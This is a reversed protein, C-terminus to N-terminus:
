VSFKRCSKFVSKFIILSGSSLCFVHIYSLSILFYVSIVYLVLHFNQACLTFSLFSFSCLPIWCIVAPLSFCYSFLLLYYYLILFLFFLWFLKLSTHYVMFHFLIHLLFTGPSSSLFFIELFLPQVSWNQHFVHVCVLWCLLSSSVLFDSLSSYQSVNYDIQWSSFVLNHFWSPHLLKDYPLWRWYSKCMMDWMEWWLGWFDPFCCFSLYLIVFSPHRAWHILGRVRAWLTTPSLGM